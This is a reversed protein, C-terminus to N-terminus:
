KQAWERDQRAADDPNGDLNDLDDEHYSDMLPKAWAYHSSDSVGERTVPITAGDRVDGEIPFSITTDKEAGEEQSPPLALNGKGKSATNTMEAGKRNHWGIFGVIALCAAIATIASVLKTMKRVKNRHVFRNYECSYDVAFIDESNDEEQHFGTLMILLAEEEKTRTASSKAQLEQRLLREEQASTEGALDSRTLTHIAKELMAAYEKAKLQADPAEVSEIELNDTIPVHDRLRQHRVMSVCLNKTAIIAIKEAEGYDIKGYRLWLKMLVEQVVDEADDKNQFFRYAIKLIVPRVHHAIHEFENFTM